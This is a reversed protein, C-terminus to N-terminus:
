HADEGCASLTLIAAPIRTQVPPIMREDLLAYPFALSRTLAQLMASFDVM